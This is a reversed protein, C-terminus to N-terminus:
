IVGTTKKIRNRSSRIKTQGLQSKTRLLLIFLYCGGGWEMGGVGGRERSVEGEIGVGCMTASTVWRAGEM